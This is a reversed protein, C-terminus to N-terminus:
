AQEYFRKFERMTYEIENDFKLKRIKCKAENEVVLKSKQFVVFV